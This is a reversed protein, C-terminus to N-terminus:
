ANRRTVVHTRLYESLQKIESPTPEDLRRCEWHEVLRKWYAGYVRRTGNTVAASVKPVYEGFTPATPRGAEDRLLDEPSIGMQDLILRAADLEATSITEVTM